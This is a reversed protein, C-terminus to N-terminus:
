NRRIWNIIVLLLMLLDVKKTKAIYFFIKWYIPFYRLELRSLAHEYHPMNLINYFENKKEQYSMSTDESINIGLGLIGIAIRNELAIICDENEGLELLVKKIKIYMKQWLYVKNKNYSHTLSTSVEKRYHYFSNPLYVVKNVNKFVEINFFADEIGIVEIDLFEHGRLVDRRYLKGWVTIMSDTIQPQALQEQIPGIMRRWLDRCQEGEWELFENGFYLNEKVNSLFDRKYGWMVIDSNSKKIENYAKECMDPEIWDDGDVFMIYQGNAHVMGSNRAKSVGENSKNIIIIRNDITYLRNLIDLSSDTSGDNVVIIEINKYTQGIISRICTEVYKEVNYVPIIISILENMSVGVITEM